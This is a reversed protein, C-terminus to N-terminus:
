QDNPVIGHGIDKMSIHLYTRSVNMPEPLYMDTINRIIQTNDKFSTRYYNLYRDSYIDRRYTNNLSFGLNM